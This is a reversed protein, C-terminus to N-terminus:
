VTEYKQNQEHQLMILLDRKHKDLLNGEEGDAVDLAKASLMGEEEFRTVLADFLQQSRQEKADTPEDDLNELLEDIQFNFM